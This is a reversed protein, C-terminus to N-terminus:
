PLRQAVSTRIEVAVPQDFTVLTPEIPLRRYILCLVVLIGILASTQLAKLFADVLGLM